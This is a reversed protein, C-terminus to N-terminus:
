KWIRVKSDETSRPCSVIEYIKRRSYRSFYDASTQPVKQYKTNNM